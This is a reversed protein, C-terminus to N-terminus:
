IDRILLAGRKLAQRKFRAGPSIQRARQSKKIPKQDYRVISASEEAAITKMKEHVQEVMFEIVNLRQKISALLESLESCLLNKEAIVELTKAEDALQRAETTLTKMLDTM